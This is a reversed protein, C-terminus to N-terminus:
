HLHHAGTFPRNQLWLTPGSVQFSLGGALLHSSPRSLTESYHDKLQFWGSLQYPVTSPRRKFPEMLQHTYEWSSAQFFHFQLPPRDEDTCLFAPHPALILDLCSPRWTRDWICTWDGQGLGSHRRCGHSLPRVGLSVQKELVSWKGTGEEMNILWARCREHMQSVLPGLTSGSTVAEDMCIHMGLFKQMGPTDQIRSCLSWLVYDPGPASLAVPTKHKNWDPGWLIGQAGCNLLSHWPKWNPTIQEGSINTTDPNTM